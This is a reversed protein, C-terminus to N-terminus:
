PTNNSTAFVYKSTAQLKLEKSRTILFNSLPAYRKGKDSKSAKVVHEKHKSADSNYVTSYKITEIVHIALM